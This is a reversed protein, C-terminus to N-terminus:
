PLGRGGGGLSLPIGREHRQCEIIEGAPGSKLVRRRGQYTIDHGLRNCYHMNENFYVFKSPSFIVNFLDFSLCFRVSIIM